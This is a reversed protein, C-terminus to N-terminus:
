PFEPFGSYEVSWLTIPSVSFCRTAPSLFHLSVSASTNRPGLGANFERGHGWKPSTNFTTEPLIEGRKQDRSKGPAWSVLELLGFGLEPHPGFDRLQGACARHSHCSLFAKERLNGPNLTPPKSRALFLSSQTNFQLKKDGSEWIPEHIDWKQHNANFLFNQLHNKAPASM